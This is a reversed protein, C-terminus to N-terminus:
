YVDGNIVIKGDEYKEVYRRYFELKAGELAGLVDNIGQYTRHQQIYALILNTIAFNLEGPDAAEGPLKVHARREKAIYPM